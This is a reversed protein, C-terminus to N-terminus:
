LKQQLDEIFKKSEAEMLAFRRLGEALRLKTVEDETNMKDLVDGELYNIDTSAIEWDKTFTKSLPDSKAIEKMRKGKDEPRPPDWKQWMFHPEDIGPFEKVAKKWNGKTHSPLSSYSMLDTLVPM